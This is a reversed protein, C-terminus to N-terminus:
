AAKRLPRAQHCWNIWNTVEELDPEKCSRLMRQGETSEIYPTVTDLLGEPEQTAIAEPTTLECAILIQVDHGRIFPVRCNLEAQLQWDRVTESKIHWVNLKKATEEPNANLLDTVTLIKMKKLRKATKAGISPAEVVPEDPDLYFKLEINGASIPTSIPKAKSGSVPENKESDKDTDINVAAVPATSEPKVRKPAPIEVKKTEKVEATKERQIVTERQVSTRKDTTKDFFRDLPREVKKTPAPETIDPKEIVSESKTKIKVPEPKKPIPRSKEAIPTLKKVLPKTAVTKQTKSIGSKKNLVEKEYLQKIERDDEPLNEVLKGTEQIEKYIATIIAKEKSDAMKKTVWFIPITMTSLVGHLGISTRPPIVDAEEFAKDLIRSFGVSAYGILSALRARSGDDLGEPPRRRGKKLDYNDVLFDYHHNATEAGEKVMVSLWNAGSPVNVDPYGGLDEELIEQLIEYSKAISWEAARHIKGEKESQATHFPQIPDTYYHSLVGASYIAEKWNEERLHEVTIKYWKLSTKIAGGWYNDQVHLVHNRFDKFDKDPAKSGTLYPEINKLFLNSWQDAYPSQLHRLADMALKHHTSKTKWAFLVNYLLSMPCGQLQHRFQSLQLYTLQPKNEPLDPHKV